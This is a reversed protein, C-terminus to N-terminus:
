DSRGQFLKYWGLQNLYDRKSDFLAPEVDGQVEPEPIEDSDIEPANEALDNQVAQWLTRAKETFGEMRDQLEARLRYFEDEIEDIEEQYKNLIEQEREQLDEMRRFEWQEVRYNLTTDYYRQIYKKLISTLSGPYLAELADLETQGAGFREEFKGARLETEKIPTRPLGYGQCQEHTLVVPLLQVNFHNGDPLNRLFFEIKRAASVPMCQGAPDFDSVYFIRCPKRVDHLRDILQIIQTISLEGVGAVLNMGYRRCLPLLVDNMTSKEAWIELLYEQEDKFGDLRYGPLEPLGPLQFDGIDFGGSIDVFPESYENGEAFIAPAQARRDVFAAPDVYGLYRAAKAAECLRSWCKDTNEYPKGDPFYVPEKQSVVQYHIRRLHIGQTYGYQNWLDAFWEAFQRDRETGTYFPDNVPALAILDKATSYGLGEKRGRKAEDKIFKYDWKM